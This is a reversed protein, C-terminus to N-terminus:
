VVITCSSARWVSAHSLSTSSAPPRPSRSGYRSWSAWRVRSASVSSSFIKWIWTKKSRSIMGRKRMIARLEGPVTSSSRQLRSVTSSPMWWREPTSYSRTRSELAPGRVFCFSTSAPLRSNGTKTWCAIHRGFARSTTPRSIYSVSTRMSRCSMSCPTRSACDKPSSTESTWIGTQRRPRGHLEPAPWALVVGVRDARALVRQPREDPVAAADEPVVELGPRAGGLRERADGDHGDRHDAREVDLETRVLEDLRRSVDDLTPARALRHVDREGVGLAPQRDREIAARTCRALRAAEPRVDDAVAHRACRREEEVVDRACHREAAPDVALEFPHPVPELLRVERPARAVRLQPLDLRVHDARDTVHEVRERGAVRDAEVHDRPVAVRQVHGVHRLPRGQRRAPRQQLPVHAAVLLRRVAVELAAPVALGDDRLGRQGVLRDAAHQLRRRVVQELEREHARVAGYRGAHLRHRERGRGRDGGDEGRGTLVDPHDAGARHRVADAAADLAAEVDRDAERAQLDRRDATPRRKGVCARPELQHAARAGPLDVAESLDHGGRRQRELDGGRGRHRGGPRLVEEAGVVLEAAQPSRARPWWGGGRQSRISALRVPPFRRRWSNTVVEAIGGCWSGPQKPQPSFSDPRWRGNGAASSASSYSAYTANPACWWAPGPKTWPPTTAAASSSAHPRSALQYRKGVTVARM